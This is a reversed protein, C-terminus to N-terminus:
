SPMPHPAYSFGLTMYSSNSTASPTPFSTFKTSMFSIRTISILSYKLSTSKESSIQQIVSTEESFWPVM